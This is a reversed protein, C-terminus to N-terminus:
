VESFRRILLNVAALDFGTLCELMGERDSMIEISYLAERVNIKRKKQPAPDADEEEDERPVPPSPGRQGVTMADFLADMSKAGIEDKWKKLKEKTAAAVKITTPKSSSSM